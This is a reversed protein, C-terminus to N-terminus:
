AQTNMDKTLIAMLPSIQPLPSIQDGLGTMAIIIAKWLIVKQALETVEDCIVKHRKLTVYQNCILLRGKYM